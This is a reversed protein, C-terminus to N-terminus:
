GANQSSAPPSVAPTTACSCSRGTDGAHECSCGGCKWCPDLEGDLLPLGILEAAAAARHNNGLSKLAPRGGSDFSLEAVSAFGARTIGIGSPLNEPAHIIWLRTAPPCERRAIEALLSPYLGRGRFAPLTAFDWLYRNGAPIRFSLALEGITASRTAVWGYAAPEGNLLALYPRHGESIRQDVVRIPLGTAEALAFGGNASEVTMASPLPAQGWGDEYWWTALAM